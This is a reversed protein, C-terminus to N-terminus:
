VNPVEVPKSGGFTTLLREYLRKARPPLQQDVLYEKLQAHVSQKFSESAGIGQSLNDASFHFTHNAALSLAWEIAQPKVEVKEFEVQQEATRGEPAYWYGFDDKERRKKGAICWHAIEHLASSFYDNRSFIIASQQKTAAQYFPEDAGVELRTNESILFLDNFINVLQMLKKNELDM